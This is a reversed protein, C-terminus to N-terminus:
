LKNCLSLEKPRSYWCVLLINFFKTPMSQIKVPIVFALHRAYEKM